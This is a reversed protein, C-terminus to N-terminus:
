KGWLLTVWSPLWIQQTLMIMHRSPRFLAQMDRLRLRIANCNYRGAPTLKLPVQYEYFNNKYDSGLRIFVALQNDNLQTNNQEFANAHVYMQLRKYQRLDVTANKYVAKSEGHSLNNVIFDLAQENSEVLQPQTPDQERNIGPPRIYNVPFKVGNVDLSM